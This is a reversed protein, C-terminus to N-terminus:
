PMSSARRQSACAKILRLWYEADDRESNERGTLVVVYICRISFFFQHLAHTIVQGAFDWVHATVPDKKCGDMVWDCLAIGPTSGEDDRFSEGRLARVLSTKGAGGRGVLIL